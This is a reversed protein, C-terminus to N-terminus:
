AGGKGQLLERVQGVVAEAMEDIPMLRQVAGAEVAARPMGYVVSTAEDQALTKGGAALIAALGEAGDRGMGTLVVGVVRPGFRQALSTFMRTASPRFGELPPGDDLLVEENEGITLHRGSPAIFIAGPRLREEHEAEKVPKGSESSLWAALGQAFGDSIHQVVCIPAPFGRPIGKLLVALARPGGLSAAIGVIPPGDVAVVPAVKRGRRGRVHQIVRVGSLLRLRHCLEEAYQERPRSDPLAMVDLAGLSLAQFAGKSGVADTLVLIPTPRFAMIDQVTTFGTGGPMTTDVVAVDPQLEQCISAAKLGDHLSAAIAFSPDTLAEALAQRLQDDHSILLVRVTSAPSSM